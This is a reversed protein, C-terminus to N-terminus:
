KRKERKEKKLKTKIKIKISQQKVQETGLGCTWWKPLDKTQKGRHADYNSRSNPVSNKHNIFVFKFVVSVVEEREGEGKDEKEKLHMDFFNRKNEHQEHQQTKKERERQLLSMDFFNQKKIISKRAHNKM